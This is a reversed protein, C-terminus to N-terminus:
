VIRAASAQRLCAEAREQVLAPEGSADIRRWDLAGVDHTLQQQLIEVTADSADAQRSRLRDMLVDVPADLWL